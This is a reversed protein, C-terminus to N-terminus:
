FGSRTTDVYRKNYYMISDHDWVLLAILCQISLYHYKETGFRFKKRGSELLSASSTSDRSDHGSVGGGDVFVEGSAAVAAEDDVAVDFPAGALNEDGAKVGDARSEANFMTPSRRRLTPASSSFSDDQRFMTLSFWWM